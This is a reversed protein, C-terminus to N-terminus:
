LSAYIIISVHHCQIIFFVKCIIIIFVLIIVYYCKIDPTIIKSLLM